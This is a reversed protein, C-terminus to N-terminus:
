ALAGVAAQSVPATAARYIAAAATEGSRVAGEMTAPWGTDTWAGALVLGPLATVAAPRLAASGPRPRFTAARERTVFAERVVAGRARPLLEALAPEVLARLRESPLAILDDAGSLSVAVCQGEGLGVQATRDFAWQVPSGLAAVFPEDLVRRDYVVHVNVIPVAGLRASWGAGLAVAGAPLLREAAAPPVALIVADVQEHEGERLRVHWQTDVSELQEVRARTRVLAGAAALASAAPAAHLRELPVRSWGIDGAATDTLLGLRFVTAALGLSAHEARSNLTALGILDWLAAVSRADQGHAALWDGFARNDSAPDGPDVARLALAARVAMLRQRVTLPQYCALSRALHLPAPLGTRRIRARPRGPELVPIDLRPQLTVLSAVGLRDLLARYRTCCRLFVHQGNDVLLDNHRYSCTLGGLRPKAELLVVDHGADACALAATLGALGGGVVAVRGATAGAPGIM